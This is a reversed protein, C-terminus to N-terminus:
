VSRRERASIKEEKKASLYRSIKEFLEMQAFENLYVEETVGALALLEGLKEGLRAQRRFYTRETWAGIRQGAGDKGSQLRKSKGCYRIKVLAREEDTLKDFVESVRAKLWELSRMSIIEGALYEATEEANRRDGYSLIARNRIHEEYDQEVTALLPYAYLIIKAYDKM